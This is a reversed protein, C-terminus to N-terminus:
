RRDIVADIDADGDRYRRVLDEGLLDIREFMTRRLQSIRHEYDVLQERTSVLWDTPLDPLEAVRAEVEMGALEDALAGEVPGPAMVQPMPGLQDSGTRDALAEPLREVLESVAAPDGGHARRDLEAEIIDIRGQALRRLYSLSTEVDRCRGRLERLQEVGLQEHGDLYHDDLIEALASDM